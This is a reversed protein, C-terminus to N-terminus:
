GEGPFVVGICAEVIGRMPVIFRDRGLVSTDGEAREFEVIISGDGANTGVTFKRGRVEGDAVHVQLFMAGDPIREIIAAAVRERPPKDKPKTKTTM